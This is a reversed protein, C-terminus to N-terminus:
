TVSDYATRSCCLYLPSYRYCLVEDYHLSFSLYETKMLERPIFSKRPIHVRVISESDLVFVRLSRRARPYVFTRPPWFSKLETKSYLQLPGMDRPTHHEYSALGFVFYFFPDTLNYSTFLGVRQRSLCGHPLMTIVKSSQYAFATYFFSQLFIM